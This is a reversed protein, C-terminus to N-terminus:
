ASRSTHAPGDLLAMLPLAEIGLEHMRDVYMRHHRRAEGHRGADALARVLEVHAPEDFADRELVRLLLRAAGDGDGSDARLSALRRAVEIYTSRAVERLAVAWDAYPEEELVDGTYTAEAQELLDGAEDIRGARHAAIAAEAVGLFREVDVDLESRDLGVAGGSTTVFRDAPGERAPDLVGRVVTLAVSLRNALQELPEQPWLMSALEERAIPAGRRTLLIQLLERAKRSRWTSATVPVGDHVVRFTGLVQAAVGPSRAGGGTVLQHDATGPGRVGVRALALESRAIRPAAMGRSGRALALEVRATWLPDGIRRWGALARQFGQQREPGESVTALLVEAEAAAARARRSGAIELARVAHDRAAVVDGTVRAVWGAALEATADSLGTATDRARQALAIAGDPDDSASIRALGALLPVLAQIDGTSEALRLGEEYAVRALALEGRERHVDGAVQLAYALNSSGLREFISRAIETEVAAEDLRGIHLLIEARNCRSLAEIAAFGTLEALQLARDTESLAQEYAAEEMFQSGRNARIRLVQLLDNAQEAAHLALRYHEDNGRRDGHAAAVLASVTHASALARADGLQKARQLARDALVRCREIDGRLWHATATWADLLVVDVREDEDPEEDEDRRTSGIAGRAYVELARDLDGRMHHILGMRWALGARLSEHEGGAAQFHALAAAWDGRIQLGRGHLRELEPTRHARPVEAVADLVADLAGATVLADGREVLVAALRAPDGVRRLLRLAEDDHGHDHCWVAAAQLVVRRAEGRPSVTDLAVERVLSGLTHWGDGGGSSAVFLGRRALDALTRGADPVGLHALLDVTFRDLLAAHGILMHVEPGESAFVEEALYGYVAGGPSALREIAEMRRHPETGRMAETALRVAAPWGGTLKAVADVLDDPVVGCRDRLLRAVAGRELVLDAGDIDIVEGHARMRQVPFPLAQRTTVVLHLNPPAGRALAEVFRATAGGAPAEHLDDLVLVLHAPGHTELEAALLSAVAHVRSVDDADPGLEGTAAAAVAGPLGPAQRRVAEVLGGVFGRLECDRPELVYWACAHHQAWTALLTTKGAGAGATVVTLRHDLVDDLRALAARAVVVGTPVLPPTIKATPTRM